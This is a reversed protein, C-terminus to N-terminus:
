RNMTRIFTKSKQKRELDSLIYLGKTCNWRRYKSYVVSAEKGQTYLHTNKKLETTIVTKKILKWGSSYVFTSLDKTELGVVHENIKLETSLLCQVSPRKKPTYIKICINAPNSPLWPFKEKWSSHSDRSLPACMENSTQTKGSQSLEQKCM